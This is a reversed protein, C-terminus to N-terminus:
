DTQQEAIRELADVTGAGTAQAILSRVDFSEYCSSCVVYDTTRRFPIVEPAGLPRVGEATVEEVLVEGCTCLIQEAM